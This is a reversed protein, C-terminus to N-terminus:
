NDLNALGWLQLFPLTWKLHFKEQIDFGKKLDRKKERFPSAPFGIIFVYLLALAALKKSDLQGVSNM